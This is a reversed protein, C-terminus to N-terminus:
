SRVALDLDDREFELKGRRQDAPGSSGSGKVSGAMDAAVALSGQRANGARPLAHANAAANAARAKAAPALVDDSGQAAPKRKVVPAPALM